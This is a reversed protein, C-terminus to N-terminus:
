ACRVLIQPAAALLRPVVARCPRWSWAGAVCLSSSSSSSIFGWIFCFGSSRSSAFLNANRALFFHLFFIPPLHTSARNAQHTPPAHALAPIPPVRVPLSRLVVIFYRRRVVLMVAPLSRLRDRPNSIQGNLVLAGRKQVHRRRLSASYCQWPGPILHGTNIPAHKRATDM